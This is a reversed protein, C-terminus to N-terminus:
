FIDSRLDKISINKKESNLWSTFNQNRERTLLQTKLSDYAENFATKDFADRKNLKFIFYHSSSEVVDSVDNIEMENLIGSMQTSRGITEFSGGITSSINKNLQVSSNNKSITEWDEDFKIKQFTDLAFEKKRERTLVRKIQQKVNDLSKYSSKNKTIINFVALGNNSNLPESTDGINNDFGFRVAQRIPGMNFPLGSNNLFSETVNVTDTIELEYENLADRFSLIDADAAFDIALQLLSDQKDIITTSDLGSADINEFLIYQLSVTEDLIYKQDKEDDFNQLVENDTITILSDEISSYNISLVDLTCNINNQTYEYKIDSDSISTFNNYLNQLKRDSLYTTLYREWILLLQKTTDPLNGNKVANQYEDLKFNNEEDVFLGLDKLNNQFSIPPSLLLFDYIENEHVDINFEEIKNDKIKREVITNWAFDGANQIARADITRGQQRMRNLQNQRENLYYSIPINENGVRGVYLSTDVGGFASKIVDIINAGGVLGGVTMSAIFFFLLTWLLGKQRDRLKSMSFM